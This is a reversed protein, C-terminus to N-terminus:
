GGMLRIVDEQGIMMVMTGFVIYPGYPLPTFLEYGARTVLRGTIFIIAGAAGALVTILMAFVMYQWGIMLGCLTALTVDGYGFAVEDTNISSSFIKGGMYFIWFIVYSMGAGIFYDATDLEADTFLVACVAAVLLGPIITQTFLVLRHDIDIITILILLPIYILWVGIREHGWWNWVVIGFILATLIETLPYRWGLKTGGPSRRHGTLYALLGSWAIPPRKTTDQYHPVLTPNYGEPLYQPVPEAEEDEAPPNEEAQRAYYNEIQRYRYEPLFDALANILVGILFGAVIALLTLLIEM